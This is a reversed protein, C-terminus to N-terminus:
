INKVRILKHFIDSAVVSSAGIGFCYLVNQHYWKEAWMLPVSSRGFSIFRFYRQYCIGQKSIILETSDTKALNGYLIDGSSKKNSKKQFTILKLNLIVAIDWKVLSVFSASSVGAKLALDATWVPLIRM